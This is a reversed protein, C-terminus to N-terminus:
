APVAAPAQEIQPAMLLLYMAPAFFLALLTGGLVGGAITIVLPPWFGGGAILLPIFGAITTLTTSLVHRTEHMVVAVVAARDGQRVREDEHLAALVVISDNIAIGILGMTGVIAMFGFPFGFLTLSALGLGISAAAILVLIMALRFSRFALVLSSLMLTVIVGLSAMLNGIARKREAEEGGFELAYGPPLAAELDAVAPRLAALVSAPLVGATIYGRITNVHQGDRRPIAAYEPRLELTGLADLPVSQTALTGDPAADAPLLEISALQETDTRKGAELRIRLPLEETDELLSGALLGDLRAALQRAIGVNDLRAVRAEDDDLRLWLKRQEHNLTASSHLLDPLGSMALRVQEGIRELTRLDPGVVRVEVPALFPPGQELQRVVTRAQPYRRDLMLQLDRIADTSGEVSRFQVMALGYYPSQDRLGALLNYYFKAGSSGVFWHVDEVLDHELLAARVARVTEQTLALPMERPLEFELFAQDRDAPPFFQMELNSGQYFGWAPLLLSLGIALAPRAMLTDLLRRFGRGVGGPQVGSNLLTRRRAGPQYRDLLGTVAPIVTLSLALSSTVALIVSLGIAGVFEGAGGPMIVIPLFALVTTLTSGLLPVALHRVSNGIAVHPAAGERIRTRVEHVIVIANDILLGLAIILGTVSMQHLPVGLVRMGALVMLSSLPLATGVLLAAQWGMTLLMVLMVLLIGLLLNQMLGGLRASVYRNQDFIVDLVLGGSLDARFDAIAARARASWQDVRYGDQMRAAVVVAPQGSVEVLSAPPDAITKRIEAISGLRVFRGGADVRVPLRRIRELSDFEGEVEMLIDARGTRVSGAAVKADAQAIAGALEEISLNLAALKDPHISVLIEEAPDGFLDADETGELGRFVDALDEALRRMVGYQPPTEDSWRLAAIVTYASIKQEEFQPAGAGTPLVAAADDLKDRLRSWVEDVNGVEDFLEVTVVSLGSRSTSETKRIEEIEKLEDELKETVLADVREADAGPFSTLITAARNVLTPDEQRPLVQLAALGSVAILAITLVLLHPNRYFLDRM